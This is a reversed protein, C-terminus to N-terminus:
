KLRIRKAFSHWRDRHPTGITPRVNPQFGRSAHTHYFEACKINRQWLQTKFAYIIMIYRIDHVQSAHNLKYRQETRGYRSAWSLYDLGSPRGGPSWRWFEHKLQLCIMITMFGTRSHFVIMYTQCTCPVYMYRMCTYAYRLFDHHVQMLKINYFQVSYRQVRM